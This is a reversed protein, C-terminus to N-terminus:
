LQRSLYHLVLDWITTLVVETKYICIFTPSAKFVIHYVIALLEPHTKPESDISDICSDLSYWNLCTPPVRENEHVASWLWISTWLKYRYASTFYLIYPTSLYHRYFCVKDYSLVYPMSPKLINGLWRSVKRHPYRAAPDVDYSSWIKCSESIRTQKACIESGQM